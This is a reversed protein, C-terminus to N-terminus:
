GNKAKMKRKKSRTEITGSYHSLLSLLHFLSLFDNAHPIGVPSMAAHNYTSIEIHIGELYFFFSQFDAM